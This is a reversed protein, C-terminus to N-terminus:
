PLAMGLRKFVDRARRIKDRRGVADAQPMADRFQLHMNEASATVDRLTEVDDASMTFKPIRGATQSFRVADECATMIPGFVPDDRLEPGQMAECQSHLRTLAGLLVENERTLLNLADLDIEPLGDDGKANFEMKIGRAWLKVADRNGDLLLVALNRLRDTMPKFMSDIYEAAVQRDNPHMPLPVLWQRHIIFSVIKEGMTPLKDPNISLQNPM